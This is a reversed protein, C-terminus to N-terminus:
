DADFACRYGNKLRVGKFQKGYLSIFTHAIEGVETILISGPWGLMKHTSSESSIRSM